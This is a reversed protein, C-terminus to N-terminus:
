KQRLHFLSLLERSTELGQRVAETLGPPHREVGIDDRLLEDLGLALLEHMWELNQRSRRAGIHRSDLAYILETADLNISMIGTKTASAPHTYVFIRTPRVPIYCKWGASSVVESRWFDVLLSPDKMSEGAMREGGALQFCDMYLRATNRWVMARGLVYAKASIAERRKVDRLLGSVECAIM